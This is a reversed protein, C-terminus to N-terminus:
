TARGLALDPGAQGLRPHALRHRPRLLHRHAALALTGIPDIHALPNLTVRGQSRPLPDGLKDAVFAHGFEHVCISLVLAVIYILGFRLKEPDMLPFNYPCFEPARTTSKSWPALRERSVHTYIQTTGIDAHGLMAQVARLDAGREVLHTAFSHRLKHPSLRKRIGAARAYGALLKWFGQRTMARGRHTVFLSPSSRAGLLSPRARRWTSRIRDHAREGLPVLRQKKGKGVTSM